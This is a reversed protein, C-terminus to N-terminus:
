SMGAFLERHGEIIRETEQPDPELSWDGSQSTGGLLVGDRRPFMYLGPAIAMYDVEPQPILFSLQGKVPTLEEDGFLAKAGVGTCNVITPEPLAKVEKVERLERVVVKGGALRFDRMVENLFIPPEILMTTFHQAYLQGFPHQGPELVRYEKYLDHIPNREAFEEYSPQPRTALYYNDLWRIGYRERNLEQFYRHAFRAAREYQNRYEASQGRRYRFGPNWQGAAVNSTTHPPLDKSYITVRHGRDQLLRASCLGMCGSGLVACDRQGAATALEAALHASGWSLSIGAGGHGFNHVLTKDDLKEARVVFGSRRFPRLGAITRIMRDHSVNVRAFRRPAPEVVM